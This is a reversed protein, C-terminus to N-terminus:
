EPFDREWANEIYVMAENMTMGVLDQLPTRQQEHEIDTRLEESSVSTIFELIAELEDVQEQDIIIEDGNGDLLAEMHPINLLVVQLLDQTHEPHSQFINILETNHRWYMESYYRGYPTQSMIEDDVRYLVTVMHITNQVAFAREPKTIIFISLFLIIISIIITPALICGSVRRKTM